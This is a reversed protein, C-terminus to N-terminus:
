FPENRFAATAVLLRGGDPMNGLSGPFNAILDWVYFARVIIVDGGAGLDFTFDNRLEGNDDLPDPMTVGSFNNFRKVDLKLTSMCNQLGHANNCIAQKFQTESFGQTQAQGTRVLRSAEDVASDLSFNAFFVLSVEILAVLLAFFPLAIIGFEIATAGSNDARLRYLLGRKRLSSKGCSRSRSMSM